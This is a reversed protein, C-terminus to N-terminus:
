AELAEIRNMFELVQKPTAWGEIGDHDFTEGKFAAVEANPCPQSTEYDHSEMDRNDCYNMTGIQVSVTWGNEFTIQFGKNDNIEIM